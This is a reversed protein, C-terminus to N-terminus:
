RGGGAKVTSWLGASALGIVIGQMAGTVADANGRLAALLGIAAGLIVAVLGAYRTALGFTVKAVQVLGTVLLIASAGFWTVSDM